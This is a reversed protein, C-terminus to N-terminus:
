FYAPQARFGLLELCQAFFSRGLCLAAVLGEGCGGCSRDLDLVGEGARLLRGELAFGDLSDGEGLQGGRARIRLGCCGTQMSEQNGQVMATAYIIRGSSNGQDLRTNAFHDADGCESQASQGRTCLSWGVILGVARLHVERGSFVPRVVWVAEDVELAFVVEEELVVGESVLPSVHAPAVCDAGIQEM